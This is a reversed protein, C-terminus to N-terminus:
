SRVFRLSDVTGPWFVAGHFQSDPTAHFSVGHQPATFRYGKQAALLAGRPSRKEKM